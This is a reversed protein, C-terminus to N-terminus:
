EVAPFLRAPDLSKKLPELVFRRYEPSHCSEWAELVSRHVRVPVVHGEHRAALERVGSMVGGEEGMTVWVVGNGALLAVRRPSPVVRRLAEFVAVGAAPPVCVKLSIRDEGLPLPDLPTRLTELMASRGEQVRFAGGHHSAMSQLDKQQREVAGPHGELAVLCRIRGEEAEAVLVASPVLVSSRLDSVFAGLGGDGDAFSVECLSSASPIPYIRLSLSTIVGFSGASGLLFKTIDYGSVNKVTKGGFGMERGRADVGRVGLVLDRLTGYLHRLPGSANAAFTGGVTARDSCPPDAPLFFGRGERALHNNIADITMGGLVAVTLNQPDLALIRDLGTTDLVLDVEAPLSAGPVTAGGVPLLTWNERAAAEVVRQAEKENSPREFRRVEVGLRELEEIAPGVEDRKGSTENVM